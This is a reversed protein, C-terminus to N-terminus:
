LRKRYQNTRFAEDKQAVGSPCRKKFFVCYTSFICFLLGGRVERRKNEIKVSISVVQFIVWGGGRAREKEKKKQHQPLAFLTVINRLSAARNLLTCCNASAGAATTLRTEAGSGRSSLHITNNKRQKKKTTKPTTNKQIPHALPPLNHTQCVRKEKQASM